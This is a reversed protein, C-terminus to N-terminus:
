AINPMQINQSATMVRQLRYSSSKSISIDEVPLTKMAMKRLSYVVVDVILHLPNKSGKGIMTPLLLNNKRYVVDLVEQHNRNDVASM